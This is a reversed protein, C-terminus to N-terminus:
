LRLVDVVTDLRQQLQAHMDTHCTRFCSRLWSMGSACKEVQAAWRLLPRKVYDKFMTSNVKFMALLGGFINSLSTFMAVAACAAEEPWAM